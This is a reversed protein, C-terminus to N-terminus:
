GKLRIGEISQHEPKCANNRCQAGKERGRPRGWVWPKPHNDRKQGNGPKKGPPQAGPARPANKFTPIGNALALLQHGLCIGFVPKNEKLIDKLTSVAYDM